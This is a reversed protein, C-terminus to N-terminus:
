AVSFTATQGAPVTQDTPQATIAPAVATATVTLTAPNSTVTGATSTVTVSFQAGNDATTTTNTTYTSSTAGAIETGNKKWQYLFPDAGSAGVSFSATAGEIVM